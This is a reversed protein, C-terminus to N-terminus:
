EVVVFKRAAHGGPVYLFYVGPPMRGADAENLGPGSVKRGTADLLTAGLRADPLGSPHRYVTAGHGRGVPLAGEDTGGATSDRIVYLCSREEDTVYVRGNPVCRAESPAKGAAVTSLVRLSDCDIVSVQGLSQVPCYLRAGQWDM